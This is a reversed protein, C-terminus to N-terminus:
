LILNGLDLTSDVLQPFQVSITWHRVSKESHIPLHTIAALNNPHGFM